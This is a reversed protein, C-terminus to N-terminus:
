EFGRRKALSVAKDVGALAILNYAVALAALPYLALM